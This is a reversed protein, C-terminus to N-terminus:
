RGSRDVRPAQDDNKTTPPPAEAGARAARLAHNIFRKIQDALPGPTADCVPLLGVLTGRYLVRESQADARGRTYLQCLWHYSIHGNGIACAMLGRRVDLPVEREAETLAQDPEPVRPLAPSAGTSESVSRTATDPAGGAPGDLEDLLRLLHQAAGNVADELFGRPARLNTAQQRLAETLVRRADSLQPLTHDTM